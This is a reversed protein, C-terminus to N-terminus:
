DLTRATRRPKRSSCRMSILRACRILSCAGLSPRRRRAVPQATEDTATTEGLRTPRGEREPADARGRAKEGEGGAEWRGGEGAGRVRGGHHLVEVAGGAGARGRVRRRDRSARGVRRSIDVGLLRTGAIGTARELHPAVGVTVVIGARAPPALLGAARADDGRRRALALLLRVAAHRLQLPLDVGESRAQLRTGRGRGGNGGGSSTTNAPAAGAGARAGSAPRRVLAVSAAVRPQRARRPGHRRRCALPLRRLPPVAGLLIAAVPGEGTGARHRRLRRQEDVVACAVDDVAADQAEVRGLLQERAVCVDHDLVDGGDDEGGADRRCRQPRGLRREEQGDHGRGRGLAVLDLLRQLLLQHLDQGVLNEDGALLAELQDLGDLDGGDPVPRGLVELLELEVLEDVDGGDHSEVDAKALLGGLAAGQGYKGRSVLGEEGGGGGGRRGGARGAVAVRGGDLGAAGPQGAVEQGDVGGQGEVPGDQDAPRGKHAFADVDQGSRGVRRGGVGVEAAQDARVVQNLLDAQLEGGVVTRRRRADAMGARLEDQARKLPLQVLLSSVHRGIQHLTRGM